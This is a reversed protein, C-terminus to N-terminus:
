CFEKRLPSNSAYRQVPEIEQCISSIFPGIVSCSSVAERNVYLPGLLRAIPGRSLRSQGGDEALTESRTVAQQLAATNCSLLSTSIPSQDM